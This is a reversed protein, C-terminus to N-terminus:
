WSQVRSLFQDGYRRWAYRALGINATVIVAAALLVLGAVESAALIGILALNALVIPFFFTEVVALRLGYERSDARRIRRLALCGFVTVGIPATLYVIALLIVLPVPPRRFALVMLSVLGAAVVWGTASIAPPSVRRVGPQYSWWERARRWLKRPMLSFREGTPPPAAPIATAADPSYAAAPDLRSLIEGIAEGPPQEPRAALMDYIQSEVEDVINRREARSVNGAFLVREISDLHADILKRVDDPLRTTPETM